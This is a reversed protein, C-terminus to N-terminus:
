SEGTGAQETNRAREHLLSEMEVLRHMMAEMLPVHADPTGAAAVIERCETLVSKRPWRAVVSDYNLGPVGDRRSALGQVGHGFSSSLRIAKPTSTSPSTLDAANFSDELGDLVRHFV